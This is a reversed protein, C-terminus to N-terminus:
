DPLSMYDAAKPSLKSQPVPSRSTNVMSSRPSHRLYRQKGIRLPSLKRTRSTTAEEEVEYEPVPAPLASERPTRPQPGINQWSLLGASKQIVGAVHVPIVTKYEARERRLWVAFRSSKELVDPDKGDASDTSLDALIDLFACVESSAVSM